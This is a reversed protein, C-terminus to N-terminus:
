AAAVTVLLAETAEVTKRKEAEDSFLDDVAQRQGVRLLAYTLFGRSLYGDFAFDDSTAEREALSKCSALGEKLVKQLSPAAQQAQLPQGLFPGIVVVVFALIIKSATQNM